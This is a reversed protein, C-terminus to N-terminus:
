RAPSKVRDNSTSYLAYGVGAGLAVLAIIGAPTRFFNKSGLDTRTSGAQAQAQATTRADELTQTAVVKQVATRISPRPKAATVTTEGATAALPAATIAVALVVIQAVSPRWPRVIFRV